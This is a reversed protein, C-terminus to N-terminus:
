KRRLKKICSVIINILYKFWDLSSTNSAPIKQPPVETTSNNKQEDIKAQEEARLKIDAEEIKKLEEARAQEEILKQNFLNDAEIKALRQDEVEEPTLGISIGLYNCIGVAIAYADIRDADPSINDVDIFRCEVLTSACKLDACWGLKGFRSKSQDKVGRKRLGTYKALSESIATAMTIQTEDWYTWVESGTGGGSNMHIQIAWASDYSKYRANAWNIEGVIDGVDNPMYDVDVGWFRLLEVVRDARDINNQAETEGQGIAGSDIDPQHGASIVIKM